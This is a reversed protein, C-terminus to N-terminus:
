FKVFLLKFTYARNFVVCQYVFLIGYNYISLTFNFPLSLILITNAPTPLGKFYYQQEKDLNFTALRYASAITILFGILAIPRISAGNWTMAQTWQNQQLFVNDGGFAENILKYMVIGPVLASTIMDALSDLQVGLKSQLNLKRALLGDFFDFLIGLFVFFHQAWFISM